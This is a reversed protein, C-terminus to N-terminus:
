AFDDPLSDPITVPSQAASWEAWAEDLLTVVEIQESLRANGEVAASPDGVFTAMALAPVLNEDRYHSMGRRFLARLLTMQQVNLTLTIAGSRDSFAEPAPPQVAFVADCQAVIDPDLGGFPDVIGDFGNIDM